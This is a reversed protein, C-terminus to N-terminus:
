SEAPGLAGLAKSKRRDAPTEAPKPLRDIPKSGRRGSRGGLGIASGARKAAPPKAAARSPSAGEVTARRPGHGSGASSNRRLAESSSEQLAKLRGIEGESAEKGFAFTKTRDARRMGPSLPTEPRLDHNTRM